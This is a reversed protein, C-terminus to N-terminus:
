YNLKGIVTEDFQSMFDKGYTESSLSKYHEIYEQATFNHEVSFLTMYIKKNNYKYTKKIVAIDSLLDDISDKLTRKDFKKMEGDHTEIEYIINEM